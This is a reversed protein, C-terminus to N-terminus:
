LAIHPNYAARHRGHSSSPPRQRVAAIQGPHFEAAPAPLGPGGDRASLLRLITSVFRCSLRHFRHDPTPPPISCPPEAPPLLAPCPLEEAPLPPPPLLLPPPPSLLLLLWLWLLLPPPPLPLLAALEGGGADLLLLLLMPPCSEGEGTDFSSPNSQWQTTSRVVYQHCQWQSM